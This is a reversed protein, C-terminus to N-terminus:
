TKPFWQKVAVFVKNADSRKRCFIKFDDACRVIYMEKLQTERLMKYKNGKDVTGTKHVRCKYNRMKGNPKPIEIRRVPKSQYFNLKRQVIEVYNDTPISKIDEITCKDTGSTNSGKNRKINRYALKINEPQMILEMLNEFIKGQQSDTYLKDFLEQMNYYENHRLKTVKTM